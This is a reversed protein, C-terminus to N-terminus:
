PQTRGFRRISGSDHIRSALLHEEPGLVGRVYGWYHTGYILSQPDGPALSFGLEGPDGVPRSSTGRVPQDDGPLGGTHRRGGPARGSGDAPPDGM